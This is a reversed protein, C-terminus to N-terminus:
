IKPIFLLLSRPYYYAPHSKDSNLILVAAPCIFHTRLGPQTRKKVVSVDTPM